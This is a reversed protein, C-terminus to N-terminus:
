KAIRPGQEAGWAVAALCEEPVKEKMIDAVAKEAKIREQEAKKNAEAIKKNQLAELRKLELIAANQKTVKAQLLTLQNRANDRQSTVTTIRIYAYCVLCIIAIYPWYARFLYLYSM